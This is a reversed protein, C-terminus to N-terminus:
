SRFQTREFNGRTGGVFGYQLETLKKTCLTYKLDFEQHAFSNQGLLVSHCDPSPGTSGRAARILSHHGNIDTLYPGQPVEATTPELTRNAWKALM